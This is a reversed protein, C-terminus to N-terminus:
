YSKKPSIECFFVISTSRILDFNALLEGPINNQRTRSVDTM